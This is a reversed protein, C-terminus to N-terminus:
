HFYRLSSAPSCPAFIPVLLVSITAFVRHKRRITPSRWAIVLYAGAIQILMGVKLAKDAAELWDPKKAQMFHSDRMLLFFAGLAIVEVVCVVMMNFGLLLHAKYQTPVNRWVERMRRWAWAIWSEPGHAVRMGADLAQQLGSWPARLLAYVVYAVVPSAVIAAPAWDMDGFLYVLEFLGAFALFAIGFCQIARRQVGHRTRRCQDDICFAGIFYSPAFLGVSFGILVLLGVYAASFIVSALSQINFPSDYEIYTRYSFIILLGYLTAAATGIKLPNAKAYAVAWHETPGAPRVTGPRHGPRARQNNRHNFRM